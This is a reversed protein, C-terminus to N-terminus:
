KKTKNLIQYPYVQVEVPGLLGSSQLPSDSKWPNVPTWTPREGVPLQQDGILRNQWNNVVIVQLLNDGAKVFDTVNLRYPPTWVGGVRRGNLVVKAMVMVKGLDLYIEGSPIDELTLTNTYIAEGSFYKVREDMMDTWDYLENFFVPGGPARKGNEFSITWPTSIRHLVEKVPFNETKSNSVKGTKRFVIFSSEYADLELSLTTVQGDQNFEPLLRIEGTLPNWLEPQYGTIRFHPGFSIKRDSQNSVFYFDGDETTRHIFLVPIDKSPLQFDPIVNLQEFIQEITYGDPFVQGKGYVAPSDGKNWLLGATTQVATDAEPYHALSPSREPAPGLVVLGEKVLEAIKNLVEPRMAELKPLVLLRYEMGDALVLRGDNVSARTLLIEANIYDYSYGLPLEPDCVGTMKPADEGIFYAVDAVYRGQQLMFNARRLYSSFVDMQSFWTNKRQFDNGFWASMGPNRDEYPQHIYLHLLTANIGETFFRDGRQKMTAPYRGFNPGGSTFSEAWVKTKGYIHACSSAARNEIDGLSGESWFEGSVEDSQGGYQLFEGPFGWHGYNELWTTLGHKHSVEALGGVYDYSVRDAILRRLDWLFRDSIDSNGIINGSLVPLYPVPDYDYTEKFREIMNDTWNQGGTEYSDQVVVKFCKRDAEPIRRLIEGIFADFHTAVHKRSMKDIELGTAEPSAPSNTVESSLMAYRAIVWDGEPVTWELTGDASFSSTIDIVKEKNVILDPDSIAPQREWLYDHWLPLPTQFMKALTKEPYREMLPKSSLTIELEGGGEPSLELRFVEAKTEPLSIVVPAYPIFGVNLAPNSRDAEFEKLLKYDSGDKALIRVHTKIPTKTKVSINRILEEGPLQLEQVFPKGNEKKVKWTKEFLNATQDPYALVKVDQADKGVSPLNVKLTQPGKVKIESSALYRMSEEPKVWPGGSQSWGPSNFIGIEIDLETAKKLAAHTIEWWEPSLVKHEGAELDNLGINGIFARTIGAAKMAELDKEVGERSIHDSIWYWYAALRVSDPVQRFGEEIRDFSVNQQKKTCGTLIGFLCVCLFISIRVKM